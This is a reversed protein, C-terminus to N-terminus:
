PVDDIIEAYIKGIQHLVRAEPSFCFGGSDAAYILYINQDRPYFSRSQINAGMNSTMEDELPDFDKSCIMRQRGAIEYLRADGSGCTSHCGAAVFSVQFTDNYPTTILGSELSAVTSRNVVTPSGSPTCGFFSTRQQRTVIDTYNTLSASRNNTSDFLLCGGESKNLAWAYTGNYADLGNLTVATKFYQSVLGTEYVTDFTITDPLDEITVVLTPTGAFKRSTGGNPCDCTPPLSGCCGCGPNGRKWAM